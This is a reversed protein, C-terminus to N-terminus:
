SKSVLHELQEDNIFRQINKLTLQNIRQVAEFTAGGIHPTAIVNAQKSLETISPEKEFVDLAAGKIVHNKLAALLDVENVLGGRSINILFASPKMKALTKENILHRNKESLSTSLIIYDATSLLDDLETFTVNLGKAKEENRYHGFAIVSMDFGSARKAIAQGIAGFGIIGLKKGYVENGMSLQWKGTKMEQDKQAIQRSISLLLSFGLDAASHANEGPANTVVIGKKEAYSVDINDYGAGFKIIYKLNPAHDIVEQDIKVIAVVIIDVEEVEKLLQSKTLGSDSHVFKVEANLQKADEIITPYEEIFPDRILYLVKM